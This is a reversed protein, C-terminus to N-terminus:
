AGILCSIRRCVKGAKFKKLLRTEFALEDLDADSLHQWLLYCHCCHYCIMYVAKGSQAKEKVKITSEEDTEAQGITSLVVSNCYWGAPSM